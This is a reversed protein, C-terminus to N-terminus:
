SDNKDSQKITEILDDLTKSKFAHVLTCILWGLTLMLAMLFFAEWTSSRIYLADKFSTTAFVLLLTLLIGFPAIWNKRKEMDRLHLTLILRLKDITINVVEQSLNNYINTVEIGEPILRGSNPASM